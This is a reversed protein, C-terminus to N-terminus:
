LMELFSSLPEGFSYECVFCQKEKRWCFGKRRGYNKAGWFRPQADRLYARTFKGGIAQARNRAPERKMTRASKPGAIKLNFGNENEYNIKQPFQQVSVKNRGQLREQMDGMNLKKSIKQM